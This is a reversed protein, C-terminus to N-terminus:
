RRSSGSFFIVTRLKHPNRHVFDCAFNRAHSSTAPCPSRFAGYPALIERTTSIERACDPCNRLHQDLWDRDASSIEEILSREFCEQARTHLNGTM